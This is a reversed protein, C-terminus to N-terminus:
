RLHLTDGTLYSRLNIDWLVANKMTVEMFVDFRLMVNVPGARYRLRVTEHSTRVQNKYGMSLM